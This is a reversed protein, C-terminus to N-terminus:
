GPGVKRRMARSTAEAVAVGILGGAIVDTPYHVGTHVRSYAVVAALVVLPSTTWSLERGAGVAFAFAAASHGSPFSASTPMRVSRGAVPELGRIPRGRRLLPKVALNVIASTAAVSALGMRAARRGAPGATDALVAACAISIRSYNAARTIVRLSRDLAPTRTRGIATLIARDLSDVDALWGPERRTEAM